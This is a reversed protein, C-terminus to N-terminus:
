KQSALPLPNSEPIGDWINKGSKIYHNSLKPSTSAKYRIIEFMLIIPYAIKYLPKTHQNRKEPDQAKELSQENKLDQLCGLSNVPPVKVQKKEKREQKWDINM